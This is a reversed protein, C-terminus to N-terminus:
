RSTGARHPSNVMLGKLRKIKVRAIEEQEPQGMYAHTIVATEIGLRVLQLSLEFAYHPAGGMDPCFEDGVLAVRM